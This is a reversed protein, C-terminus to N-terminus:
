LVSRQKPYNILYIAGLIITLPLWLFIITLNFISNESDSAAEKLQPAFSNTNKNSLYAILCGVLCYLAFIIIM